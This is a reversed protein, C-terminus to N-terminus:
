IRRRMRKKDNAIQYKINKIRDKLMNIKKNEVNSFNSLKEELFLSRAELQEISKSSNKEKKDVSIVQLAKSISKIKEMHSNNHVGTKIKLTKTNEM